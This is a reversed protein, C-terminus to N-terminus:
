WFKYNNPNRRGRPVKALCKTQILINWSIQWNNQLFFQLTYTIKDGNVSYKKAIILCCIYFLFFFQATYSVFTMRASVLIIHNRKGWRPKIKYTVKKIADLRLHWISTGRLLTPKGTKHNKNWSRGRGIVNQCKVWINFMTIVHRWYM